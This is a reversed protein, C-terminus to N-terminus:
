RREISDGGVAYALLAEIQEPLGFLKVRDGARLVTDASPHPVLTGDGRTISMVSVGFRERVRADHLTRDTLSGASLTVERLRPLEGDVAQAGAPDMAERYQELYALVRDRPLALRRLAHRILTSAAELEPQIIETAGAQRLRDHEARDHTRALIPLSPSLARLQRVALRTSEIEPLAVVVLAAHAAGASELLGRQAANGFLSPIGRERLGRVIDPDNEIAVWRVHFTDLAEAVASGVRGYGCLIVHGALDETAASTEPLARGVLRLAGLSRPAMRVLAANLLVSLLSAALTAQYVDPGIHGERRAAQVLVFSFEGIQALGIGTLLATWPTEGFLRVVGARILLKGAVVLGVMAVLLPVDDFVRFPDILAGVTVFFFAGFTDRLPLLRALTEHAFDSTSILLGALFAGLALSLGVAQTLAATGLGIALAVLLFLEQNRTRAVRTLVPSVIRAAVIVFPVLVLGATALGKGIALLRDPAGGGLAPMLALLVVVALDEVLSIGILVRGHRTHLEGRDLLLRALVMTSAVSTVIGVMLGQLPSWGLAAGTGLALAISLVIGLPGGVLAVWKVRLLDKLSFELGICFMLLVVGIEAFAEFNHTSAVAPGPTLPSVAMGGLVYGLVLPQGTYWALAGGIVAALLVLALDSFFIPDGAM